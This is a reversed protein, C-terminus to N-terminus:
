NVGEKKDTKPEFDKSLEIVLQNLKELFAEQSLTGVTIENAGNMNVTVKLDKLDKQPEDSISKFFSTLLQLQRDSMKPINIAEPNFLPLIRQIKKLYNYLDLFLTQYNLLNIRYTGIVMEPDKFEAHGDSKLGYPAMFYDLHRIDLKSDQFPDLGPASYFDVDIQSTIKGLEDLKPILSKFLPCSENVVSEANKECLPLNNLFEEWQNKLSEFQAKSTESTALFDVHLQKAKDKTDQLSLAAKHFYNGFNNSIEFKGVRFDFVPLDNFKSNDNLEQFKKFPAKFDMQFSIATKGPKPLALLMAIEKLSREHGPTYADSGTIITDLDMGKIDGTINVFSIEDNKESISYQINGKEIEFLALSPNEINILKLNEINIAGQKGVLFENDNNEIAYFMAKFPNKISELYSKEEVSFSAESKGSIMLEDQAGNNKSNKLTLHTDGEKKISFNTGILNSILSIHGNLAAEELFYDQKSEIKKLTPSHIEIEYNLPFGKVTLGDNTLAYGKVKLDAEAKAIKEQVFDKAKSAGYYWLGTYILSLAVVGFIIKKM